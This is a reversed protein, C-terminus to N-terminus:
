VPLILHAWFVFECKYFIILSRNVIIWVAYWQFGTFYKSILSKLLPAGNTILNFLNVQILLSFQFYGYRQCKSILNFPRDIVPHATVPASVNLMCISSFPQAMYRDHQRVKVTESGCFQLMPKKQLQLKRSRGEQVANSGAIGYAIAWLGHKLCM